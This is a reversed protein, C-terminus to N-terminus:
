GPTGSRAGRPTKADIGAEIASTVVDWAYQVQESEEYIYEGQDNYYTDPSQNVVADWLLGENDIFARGTAETYQQGVAIYDEWSDAWLASVEDRDTPLGAEEFLDM